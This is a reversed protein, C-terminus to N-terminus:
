GGVIRPVVVIRPATRDFVDLRTAPQGPKDVRFATAGKARQEDFLREAERIAAQAEANVGTDWEVVIDGRSSLIRMEHVSDRGPFKSKKAM